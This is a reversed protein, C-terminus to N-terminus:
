VRTRGRLIRAGERADGETGWSVFSRGRRRRRRASSFLIYVRASGDVTAADEARGDSARRRWGERALARASKRDDERSSKGKRKRRKEGYVTEIPGISTEM